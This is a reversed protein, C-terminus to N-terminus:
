RPTEIIRAAREAPRRSWGRSWLLGAALLLLGLVVLVWGADWVAAWTSTTSRDTLTHLQDGARCDVSPPYFHREVDIIGRLETVDGTLGLSDACSWTSAAELISFTVTLWYTFLAAYGGSLATIGARTVWNRLSSLTRHCLLIGVSLVEALLAASTPTVDVGCRAQRIQM